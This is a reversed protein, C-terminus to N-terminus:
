TSLPNVGKSDAFLATPSIAKGIIVEVAVVSAAKRGRAKQPPIVPSNIFFRGIVSIMTRVDESNTASTMMGTNEAVKILSPGSLFSLMGLTLRPIMM